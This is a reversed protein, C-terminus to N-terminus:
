LRFYFILTAYVSCTISFMKKRKYQKRQQQLEKKNAIKYIQLSNKYQIHVERAPRNLIHVVDDM